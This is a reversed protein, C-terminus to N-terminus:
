ILLLVIRLWFSGCCRKGCLMPLRCNNLTDYRRQRRIRSQKRVVRCARGNGILRYHYQVIFLSSLSFLIMMMMSRIMMVILITMIRRGCCSSSSRSGRTVLDILGLNDNITTTTAVSFLRTRRRRDLWVLRVHRYGKRGVGTATMPACFFWLIFTTRMTLVMMMTTMAAM